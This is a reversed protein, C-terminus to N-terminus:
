DNKIQIPLTTVQIDNINERSITNFRARNQSYQQRPHRINLSAMLINNIGSM